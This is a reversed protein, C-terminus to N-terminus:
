SPGDTESTVAHERLAQARDAARGKLAALARELDATRPDPHDALRQLCIDYAESDVRGAIVWVVSCNGDPTIRYVVRYTRDGVVLKRFGTLKKGLPQGAEPNIQLIRLKGLVLRLASGDLGELDGIADDTFEIDAM